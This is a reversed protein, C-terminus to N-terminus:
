DARHEIGLRRMKRYLTSRSIGLSRAARAVNGGSERLADEIALRLGSNPSSDASDGKSIQACQTSLGLARPGIWGNEAFLFAREVVNKLERVNGPWTHQALADLCATTYRVAFGSSASYEALFHKALLRIDEDRARLPPVTIQVGKLRYLLDPLLSGESLLDSPDRTMASLVRTEIQRPRTEGVRRMEGTDLFRLLKSQFDPSSKDIEDLLITGGDAEELLGRKARGAGTFSGAAHGFLESELLSSALAACNM